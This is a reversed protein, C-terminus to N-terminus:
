QGSAPPGRSPVRDWGGLFVFVMNTSIASILSRLSSPVPLHNRWRVFPVTLKLKFTIM